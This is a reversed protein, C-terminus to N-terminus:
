FLATGEINIETSSALDRSPRELTTVNKKAFFDKVFVSRHAPANNHLVFWSNARWKKKHFKRRVADKPRHLIYIYM